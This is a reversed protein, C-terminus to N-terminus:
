KSNVPVTKLPEILPRPPSLENVAPSKAIFVHVIVARLAPVTVPKDPFKLLICDIVPPVKM